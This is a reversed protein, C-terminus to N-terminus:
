GVLRYMRLRRHLTSRSTGLLEAARSVNGGTQALAREIAEREIERLGHQTRSPRRLSAGPLALDHPMIQLGRQGLRASALTNLLERVNGPWENSSLAELAAPSLMPGPPELAAERRCWDAVILELDNDRERLPPVTIRTQGLRHLLELRLPPDDASVIGIVWPPHVGAQAAELEAALELQQAPSLVGPRRLVVTGGGALGSKWESRWSRTACMVVTLSDDGRLSREHMTRALLLKGTGPEGEIVVPVRREAIRRAKRFLELMVPSRGTLPYWSEGSEGSTPRRRRTPPEVTVLAGIAEDESRAVHVTVQMPGCSLDTGYTIDKSSRLAERVVRLVLPLDDSTLMQAALANQIITRGSRDVTLFPAQLGVRARLYRELLERERGFVREELQREVDRAAHVVMAFTHFNAAKADTTVDLVGLVERTVPHRIPAATCAYGQFGVCFHEGAFVQAPWGVALALGIGNTGACTENWVADPVFNQAETRRLIAADGSRMVIRGHEDCVVVASDSGALETTLQAVVPKTSQVYLRRTVDRTEFGRLVAREVDAARREPSVRQELSRKWSAAIVPRISDGAEGTEQYSEWERRVARIAAAPDVLFRSPIREEAGFLSSM